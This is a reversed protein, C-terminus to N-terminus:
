EREVNWKANEKELLFYQNSKEKDANKARAELGQIKYYLEGKMRDYEEDKVDLKREKESRLSELDFQLRKENESIDTLKREMTHYEARKGRTEMDYKGQLQKYDKDTQRLKYQLDKEISNHAENLDRIKDKYKKEIQNILM